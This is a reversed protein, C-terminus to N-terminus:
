LLYIFSMEDAVRQRLKAAGAAAAVEWLTVCVMLGFLVFCFDRNGPEVCAQAWPTDAETLWPLSAFIKSSSQPPPQGRHDPPNKKKGGERYNGKTAPFIILAREKICLQLFGFGLPGQYSGVQSAKDREASCGPGGLGDGVLFACYCRGLLM